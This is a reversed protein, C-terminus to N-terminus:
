IFAANEEALRAAEEMVRAIVLLIGGILLLGVDDSSLGVTLVRHGAPLDISVALSLLVGGVATKAASILVAFGCRHLRRAAGVTFVDGALYGEFLRKLEWLGYLAPVSIVLLALIAAAMAPGSLAATQVNAAAIAPHRGLFEPYLLVSAVLFPPLLWFAATLFGAMPKALRTIPISTTTM